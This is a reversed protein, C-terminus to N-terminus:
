TGRPPRRAHVINVVGVNSPEADPPRVRLGPRSFVPDCTHSSKNRERSHHHLNIACLMCEETGANDKAGGRQRQTRSQLTM